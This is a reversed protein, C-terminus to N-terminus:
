LLSVIFQLHATVSLELFRIGNKSLSYYAFLCIFVLLQSLGFLLKSTDTGKVTVKSKCTDSGAVNSAKCVYDGADAKSVDKLELVATGNAFSFSCRDSPKIERGAKLWQIRIPESGQVHCSLQVFEGKSVTVPTPHQDFVPPKKPALILFPNEHPVYFCFFILSWFLFM